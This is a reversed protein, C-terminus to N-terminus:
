VRQRNYSKKLAASFVQLHREMEGEKHCVWHYAREAMHKTEKPHQLCHLIADCLGHANVQYAAKQQSFDEMVDRQNAMDPGHMVACQFRAPEIPNHGGVSCFSGCLVVFPSIEYFLRMEGLTDVLYVQTEKKLTEHLSRQQIALNWPEKVISQVRHIHRPAYICLLDPITKILELHTERILTEEEAHVCSAFWFPRQIIFPEARHQRLAGPAYKISPMIGIPLDVLHKFRAYSASCGTWRHSFFRMMKKFLSPALAWRRASKESIHFNLLTMPVGRRSLEYLMTPWLEAELLFFAMPKWHELFRQMYRPVDYPMMGHTVQPPLDLALAKIASVSQSTLIIDTEPWDELIRKMVSLAARGEGISAGHFWIVPHKPILSPPMIGFRQPLKQPDEKGKRCRWKGLIYLLPQMMTMSSRYLTFLM